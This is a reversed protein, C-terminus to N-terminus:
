RSLVSRADSYHAAHIRLSRDDGYQKGRACARSEAAALQKMRKGVTDRNRRVSRAVQASGHEVDNRHHARAIKREGVRQLLFATVDGHTRLRHAAHAVAERM